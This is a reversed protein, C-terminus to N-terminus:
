YKRVAAEMNKAMRLHEQLLPLTTQAWARLDPDSLNRAAQRFAAVAKTHGKVMAQAYAQDFAAGSLSELHQLMQSQSQSLQTPMAAGKQTALDKLGKNVESHDNVMHEAFSRVAPSAGKQAALKGSQVEEEDIRAAQALFDSDKPNLQGTQTMTSPQGATTTGSQQAVAGPVGLALVLGCVAVTPRWGMMETVKM